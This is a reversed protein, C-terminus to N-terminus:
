KAINISRLTGKGQQLKSSNILKQLGQIKDAFFSIAAAESYAGREGQFSVRKM